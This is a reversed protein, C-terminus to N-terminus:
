IALTAREVRMEDFAGGASFGMLLVFDHVFNQFFSESMFFGIWGKLLSHQGTKATANWLSGSENRQKGIQHPQAGSLHGRDSGDQEREHLDASHNGSFTSSYRSIAPAEDLVFSDNAAQPARAGAEVLAADIAALTDDLAAGHQSRALRALALSRDLPTDAM